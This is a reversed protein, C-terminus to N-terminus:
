LTLWFSHFQYPRVSERIWSLLFRPQNNIVVKTSWTWPVEFCDIRAKTKWGPFSLTYGWGLDYWPRCYLRFSTDFFVLRKLLVSQWHIYIRSRYTDSGCPSWADFTTSSWGISAAFCYIRTTSPRCFSNRGGRSCRSGFEIGGRSRGAGGGGVCSLPALLM